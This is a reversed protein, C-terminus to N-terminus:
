ANSFHQTASVAQSWRKIRAERHGAQWKPQAQHFVVATKNKQTSHSDTLAMMALRAAGLATTELMDPREVNINTINALTQLFWDNAVMGGDVRLTTPTVGDKSM